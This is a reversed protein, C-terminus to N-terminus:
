PSIWCSSHPQMGIRPYYGASAPLALPILTAETVRNSLEDFEMRRTEEHHSEGGEQGIRVNLLVVPTREVVFTEFLV